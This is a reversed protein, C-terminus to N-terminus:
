FPCRIIYLLWWKSSIIIQNYPLQSSNVITIHERDLITIMYRTQNLFLGNNQCIVEIGLFYHLKGLDNLFFVWKWPPQHSFLIMSPNSGTVIMDDVYVLMLLIGHSSSFVFLSSGATSCIFSSALYIYPYVNLGHGLGRLARKLHCVHDASYPNVFCPPQQIFITEKLFGYLM